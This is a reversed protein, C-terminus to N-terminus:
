SNRDLKINVNIRDKNQPVQSFLWSMWTPQIVIEERSVGEKESLLTAARATYVGAVESKIEEAMVRRVTQGTVTATLYFTKGDPSVTVDKAEFAVTDSLLEQDAPVNSALLEQGAQSTQEATLKLADSKATLSVTVFKAEKDVEPSASVATVSVQESPFITDGGQQMQEFNQKLQELAAQKLQQAAQDIDKQSVAQIERKTGGSFSDTAQAEYSTADFNSVTFKVDKALNGEPGIDAARAKGDATGFTTTLSGTNESTSASAVTVEDILTFTKGGAQLKTGAAFVKTQSTKNFLKVNGSAPDGTIKTGTAPVETDLTVTESIIEGPLPLTGSSSATTAGASFAFEQELTQPQLWVTITATYSRSMQWFAAAGGIFLLALVGGAAILLNKRKGGGSLGTLNFHPLSPFRFAFKPMSLRRNSTETLPVVNQIEDEPIEMPTDQASRNIVFGSPSVESIRGGEQPEIDWVTPSNHAPAAEAVLTGEEDASAVALSAVDVAAFDDDGAPEEESISETEAAASPNNQLIEAGGITVALRILEEPALTELSTGVASELTSESVSHSTPDLPVLIARKLKGLSQLRTHLETADATRDQSKGVRQMETVQGSIVHELLWEKTSDYVLVGSFPQPAQAAEHALLTDSLVVYGLPDLMLDHTLNKLFHKKRNTLDGNEVWDPSVVFLAEKVALGDPGLEDLATDIARSLDDDQGSTADILSSQSLLQIKGGSQQWVVIGVRDPFLVFALYQPTASSM